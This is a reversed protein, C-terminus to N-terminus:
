SRYYNQEQKLRILRKEEVKQGKNGTNERKM